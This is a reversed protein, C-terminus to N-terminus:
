RGAREIRGVWALLLLGPIAAVASAVFFLEWGLQQAIWGSSTSLLTRGVAALASLLAYQTATYSLACLGSIYAVFAASGMGGALNELGITLALLGLDAGARAQVVFMLNTLLQLIGCIWLARTVGVANMLVGGLALGALSAGFGFVKAVNAIDIKSFGIDVLFPNTMVGAFADGFKYFLVFALLVPWGPRGAFEVFPHVVARVIRQGIGGGPDAPAEPEPGLLTTAVGIAMLGAMVAYVTAWPLASALYLAGAGSTLMAIRYGLQVSTAGAPLLERELIEVRWADVVIDQSASSIALAVAWTATLLPDIRPDAQGLGIMCVIVAAQTLLLWSRRRGLLRGLLPLPLRDVLPAWLFKLAYPTGIAAFLGITARSVGSEALWVSLTGAGLALPLGSAFGM